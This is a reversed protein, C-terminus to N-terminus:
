RAAILCEMTWEAAQRTALWPHSPTDISSPERRRRDALEEEEGGDEPSSPRDRTRAVWMWAEATMKM